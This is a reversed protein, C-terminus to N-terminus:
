QKVAKQNRSRKFITDIARRDERTTKGIMVKHIKIKSKEEAAQGPAQLPTQFNVEDRRLLALKLRSSDCSM